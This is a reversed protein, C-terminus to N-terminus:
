PDFKTLHQVARPIVQDIAEPLECDRIAGAAQSHGGGGFQAALEVVTVPGSGRFNIRTKGQRGETFLMALQVGSLSRPVDIQDDINVGVLCSM